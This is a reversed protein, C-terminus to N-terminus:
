KIWQKNKWQAITKRSKNTYQSLSEVSEFEQGVTLNYKEPHKFYKTISYKKTNKRCKKGGKSSKEKLELQNKEEMTIIDDIIDSFIIYNDNFKVKGNYKNRIANIRKYNSIFQKRDVESSLKSALIKINNSFYNYEQEDVQLIRIIEKINNIVSEVLKNKHGVNLMEKFSELTIGSYRPNTIMYNITKAWDKNYNGDYEKCIITGNQIDEKLEDSEKRKIALSMNIKEEKKVKKEVTGKIYGTSSLENIIVDIKSHNFQYDQINRMADVYDNNLYKRDYCLFTDPAGEIYIENYEQAKNVKHDIDEVYIKEPNYFYIGTVNSKRIRGIQQIIECSTTQGLKISGVVLIKENENKFNLGNFAICTCITIKKNLLEKERLYKFDESEKTESRIYSVDYCNITFQEYIKKATLDDLLIIKDYWGNDVAKKIYNYQAWEINKTTKIQLNIENRKKYYKITPLNFLDKEGAPTATIFVVNVNEDKLKLILKVAADRYNRDFFLTHAEDVIIQREKIENWHKIAQDWVMVMPKNKPLEGNYNSNVEFLKDYLKNTVNFPVIVVANFYFALENNIFTTKGSGTPAEIECKNNKEIFKKIESSYESVWNNIINKRSEEIYNNDKLWKLILLDPYKNENNYHTYISKNNEYYFYKDCFEKANEKFMLDAIISIRFRIDNGSYKGIKFYRDIKIKNIEKGFTCGNLTSSFSITNPDLDNSLNIDFKEILKNLEDFKIMELNFEEIYEDNYKFDSYFLHFRQYLNTNHLDLIAEEGRKIRDDNLEKIPINLLKEILQAIIAYVIQSIQKYENKDLYGSKVYIHLGGENEKIYYGSSYQIAIISPFFHKILDIKDYITKCQEKTLHDLDVLIIGVSKEDEYHVGLKDSNYVFISGYSGKKGNIPLNNKCHVLVAELDVDNFCAGTSSYANRLFKINNM